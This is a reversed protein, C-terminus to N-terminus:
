FLRFVVGDVLFIFQPKKLSYLHASGLKDKFLDVHIERCFLSSYIMEYHYAYQCALM